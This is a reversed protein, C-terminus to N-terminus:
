RRWWTLTTGFCPLDIHGQGQFSARLAASIVVLPTLNCPLFVCSFRSTMVGHQHSRVMGVSLWPTSKCIEMIKKEELSREERGAGWTVRLDHSILAPERESLCLSKGLGRVVHGHTRHCGVASGEIEPLKQDSAGIANHNM